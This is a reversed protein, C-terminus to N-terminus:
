GEITRHFGYATTSTQKRELRFNCNAKRGAVDHFKSRSDLLPLQNLLHPVSTAMRYMHLGMILSTKLYANFSNFTALDAILFTPSCLTAM